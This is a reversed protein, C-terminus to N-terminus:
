NWQAQVVFETGDGADRGSIAHYGGHRELLMCVIRSQKDGVEIVLHGQARLLAPAGGVLAQHISLGYPGGDFAARPENLLLRAREKDLKTTSIFPPSSVILDVRGALGDEALSEFMDGTRIAVRDQLGLLLANRRALDSAEESIDCSWIRCEPDHFAIACALNGSGSCMDVVWLERGPAQRHLDELIRLAARGVRETVPRPYIVGREAILPVGMFNLRGLVFAPPTGDACAQALAWVRRASEEPALGAVQELILEAWHRPDEVQAATLCDVLGTLDLGCEPNLNCANSM